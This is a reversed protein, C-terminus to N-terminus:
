FNRKLEMSTKLAENEFWIKDFEQNSQIEIQIFEDVFPALLYGNNPSYRYFNIFTNKFEHKLMTYMRFLDNKDTSSFSFSQVKHEEDYLGFVINNNNKILYIRRFKPVELFRKIFTIFTLGEAYIEPCVKTNDYKEGRLKSLLNEYEIITQEKINEM